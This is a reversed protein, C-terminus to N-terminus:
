HIIRPGGFGGPGAITPSSNPLKLGTISVFNVRLDNLVRELERAVDPQIQSNVVPLLAGFADIAMRAQADNRAILGTYPNPRFGLHVDARAKMEMIMQLLMPAVELSAASQAQREMEERVQEKEEDTLPRGMRQEIEAFQETELEQRLQEAEEASLEDGFEDAAPDDMSELTSPPADAAEVPASGSGGGIIELKPPATSAGSASEEAPAKGQREDESLMRRDVIRIKPEDDREEAM